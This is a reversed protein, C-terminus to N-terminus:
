IVWRGVANAALVELTLEHLVHYRESDGVKGLREIRTPRLIAKRVYQREFAYGQDASAVHRELMVDVTGFDSEYVQINRSIANPSSPGGDHHIRTTNTTFSSIWQKLQSSALVTDARAGDDWILKLLENFDTLEDFTSTGIGTVENGALTRLGDMTRDVTSSGQPTSADKVGQIMSAETNRALEKMKKMGQYASQNSMGASDVADHTGSVDFELKIIQTYNSARVAETLNQGSFASGEVAGATSVSDLSDTLWDHKTSKAPVTATMSFLPTDVPDINTIFDLLDEKISVQIASDQSGSDTSHTLWTAM